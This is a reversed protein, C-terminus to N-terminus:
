MARSGWRASVCKVCRTTYLNLSQSQNDKVKSGKRRAWAVEQAGVRRRQLAGELAAHLHDVHIVLQGVEPGDLLAEDSRKLVDAQVHAGDYVPSRQPKLGKFLGQSQYFLGQSQYFLGQSQYIPLDDQNSPQNTPQNIKQKSFTM